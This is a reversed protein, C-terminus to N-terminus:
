VCGLALVSAPSALSADVASWPHAALWTVFRDAPEIALAGLFLLADAAGPSLALLAAGSLGFLLALWGVLPVVVLNAAVGVLSVSGFHFATIPATALTAATSAALAGLALMACRGALRERALFRCTREELWRQLTGGAVVLAGVSAFSLQFSPETGIGPDFAALVLAAAALATWVDPRCVLVIAGLGIAAMALSRLTAVAGGSLVTYGLAPPLAALAAVRAVLIRLALWPWRALVWAAMAYITMAVLAIHLGSVSLVHATGTRAYAGKLEKPIEGQDGIILARLVGREAARPVARALAAAIAARADDILADPQIVRAPRPTVDVARDDQLSATAVIGSRWAWRVYGDEGHNCFGRPARPTARFRVREGVRWSRATRWVTLRLREGDALPPSPAELAVDLTARSAGLGTGLRVAAVRGRLPQVGGEVRALRHERRATQWAVQLHGVLAPVLLLAAAGGLRRHRLLLAPTALLGAVLLAAALASEGVAQGGLLGVAALPLVASRALPRRASLPRRGRRM